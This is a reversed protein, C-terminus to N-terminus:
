EEAWISARSRSLGEGQRQKAHGTGASFTWGLVLTGTKLCLLAKFWWLHKTKGM